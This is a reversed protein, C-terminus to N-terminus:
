VALFTVHRRILTKPLSTSMIAIKTMSKPKMASGYDAQIPTHQLPNEGNGATKRATPQPVGSTKTIKAHQMM